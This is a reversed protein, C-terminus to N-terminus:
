YPGCENYQRWNTIFMNFASEIDLGEGQVENHDCSIYYLESAPSAYRNVRVFYREGNIIWQLINSEVTDM